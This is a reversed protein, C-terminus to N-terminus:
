GKAHLDPVVYAPREADLVLAHLPAYILDDRRWSPPTANRGRERRSPVEPVRSM